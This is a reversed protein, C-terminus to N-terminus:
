SIKLNKGEKECVAGDFVLEVGANAVKVYREITIEVNQTIILPSLTVAAKHEMTFLKELNWMAVKAHGITFRLASVSPEDGLITIGWICVFTQDAITKSAISSNEWTNASSGTTEYWVENSLGLVSPMLDRVVLTLGPLQTQAEAILTNLAAVRITSLEELPILDIPLLV